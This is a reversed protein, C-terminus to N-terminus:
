AERGVEGGRGPIVIGCCKGGEFSRSGCEASSRDLKM